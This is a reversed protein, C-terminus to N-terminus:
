KRTKKADQEILSFPIQDPYVTLGGKGISFPFIDTSHEQGRMKVVTLCREFSSQKRIRTTLILGEFLFDEPQYEIKDFDITSQQSTSLFTVGLEKMRLLFELIEKRFDISGPEHVYEFLSLSDLVVRKVKKQTIIQLPTSIDVMKRVALPQQLLTILGKKEYKELELGLDKAYSRLSSLDEELTIFLGTENNKAGEIIFQLAFITKGTGPGGDIMVSATKRLGGKLIEDMGPVGTKIKEAM